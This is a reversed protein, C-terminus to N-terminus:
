RPAKWGMNTDRSKKVPSGAKHIQEAVGLKELVKIANASLVIGAGLEKLQKAKEYVTVNWGLQQLAIATSLGGLGGGIIMAAKPAMGILREAKGHCLRM